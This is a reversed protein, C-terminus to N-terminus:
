SCFASQCIAENPTDGAIITRFVFFASNIPIADSSLAAFIINALGLSGMRVVVSGLPILPALSSTCDFVKM